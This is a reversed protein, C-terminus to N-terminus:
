ALLASAKWQLTLGVPRFNNLGTNNLLNVDTLLIVVTAMIVDKSYKTSPYRGYTRYEFRIQLRFRVITM